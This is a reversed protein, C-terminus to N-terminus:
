ESKNSTFVGTEPNLTGDGYKSTVEDLFKKEEETTEKFKNQIDNTSKDLSVIQEELRLRAIHIQGFTSQIDFYKKQFDKVKNMEEETFTVEKPM